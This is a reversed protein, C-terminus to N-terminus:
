QLSELAEKRTMIKTDNSYYLDHIQNLLNAIFEAGDNTMRKAKHYIQNRIKKARVIFM